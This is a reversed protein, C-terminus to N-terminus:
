GERRRTKIGKRYPQSNLLVLQPVELLALSPNSFTGLTEMAFKDRPSASIGFNDWCERPPSRITSAIGALSAQRQHEAM